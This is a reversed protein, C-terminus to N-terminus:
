PEFQIRYRYKGPNGDTTFARVVYEGAEFRNVDSPRLSKGNVALDFDVKGEIM